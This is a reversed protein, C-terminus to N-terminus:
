SEVLRTNKTKTIKCVDYPVIVIINRLEYYNKFQSTCGFLRSCVSPPWVEQETIAADTTGDTPLSNM